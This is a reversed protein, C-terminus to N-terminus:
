KYELNGSEPKRRHTYLGTHTPGTRFDLLGNKECRLEFVKLVVFLMVGTLNCSYKLVRGNRLRVWYETTKPM